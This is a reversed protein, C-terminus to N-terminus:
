KTFSLMASTNNILKYGSVGSNKYHVINNLPILHIYYDGSALSSINIEGEGLDDISVTGAKVATGSNSPYIVYSYSTEYLDVLDFDEITWYGSNEFYSKSWYLEIYVKSGSVSAEGAQYNCSFLESTNKHFPYDWFFHIVDGDEIPTTAVSTGLPGNAALPSTFTELPFQGNIRFKWGDLKTSANAPLAPAYEHGNLTISRIYDDSADFTNGNIDTMPISNVDSLTLMADRVSYGSQGDKLPSVSVHYAGAYNYGSELKSELVIKVTISGSTESGLSGALYAGPDEYTVAFAVGSMAITMIAVAMAVLLSKIVHKKM